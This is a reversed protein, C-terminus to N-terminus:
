RRDRTLEKESRSRDKPKDAKATKAPAGRKPSTYEPHLMSEVLSKAEALTETRWTNGPIEVRYSIGDTSHVRNVILGGAQYAPETLYISSM